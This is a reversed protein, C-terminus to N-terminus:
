VIFSNYNIVGVPLARLITMTRINRDYDITYLEQTKSGIEFYNTVGEVPPNRVGTVIVYILTGAQVYDLNHLTLVNVGTTSYIGTVVDAPALGFVVEFKPKPEQTRDLDYFNKPFVLDIKGYKPIFDEFSFLWDYRVNIRMAEFKQTTISASKVPGSRFENFAMYIVYEVEFGNEITVMNLVGNLKGAYFPNVYGTLYFFTEPAQM